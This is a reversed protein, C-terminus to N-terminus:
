LHAVAFCHLVRLTRERDVPRALYYQVGRSRIRREVEPTHASAIYAVLADPAWRHVQDLLWGCTPQDIAVDDIVVIGIDARQLFIRAENPESCPDVRWGDTLGDRILEIVSEDQSFVVAVRVMDGAISEGTPSQRPAPQLRKHTNV